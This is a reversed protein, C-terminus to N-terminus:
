FTLNESVIKDGKAATVTFITALGAGLDSKASSWTIDFEGTDSIVASANWINDSATDGSNRTITWNSFLSTADAGYGNKIMAKIHKTEGYAVLQDGGLDFSMTYGIKEFQDISGFIYANGIVIGYGTFTKEGVTWGDINGELYYINGSGFEWTNVNTLGISYETTRYKFSQRTVDNTNGRQAFNMHAQPHSLAPWNADNRLIYKFEGNNSTDTIETIEFYSTNFGKKSILGTHNDVDTTSNSGGFNHFIGMCLDGVAIAGFEGDELHLKCTGSNLDNGNEDKDITVSDILGGGKTQFDMGVLVEVRNFELKPVTLSEWLTLSRMEGKGSSDIKAGKGLLGTQYDGVQVNDSAKVSKLIAEGLKNISFDTGINIGLAASILQAVINNLTANGSGDIGMSGSGVKLGKLFSVLYNTSDEQGKSLFNTRLNKVAIDAIQSNGGITNEGTLNDIQQQIKQITGVTKTDKLTIEYKPLLGDGETIKLTDITINGTVNFDSDEIQILDGEQISYHFTTKKDTIADDHRKIFNTDPTLSYSNVTYDNKALWKLAWKLLEISAQEIYTEPMSIDTIVFEDGAKILSDKYPFYKGISTDEVRKCTLYWTDDSQQAWADVTFDRGGCYGGNFHIKPNTGSLRVDDFDFGLDKIHIIFDPVTAGAAYIGSDTITTGDTNSCGLAQNRNDAFYQLSPYIDKHTEDETTFYEAYPRIGLAGINKSNVYPYFQEESFTYGADVYAKLWTYTGKNAAVWAALTMKPFGPLMLNAINMNNPLASSTDYNFKSIDSINEKIAGSTIIASANSNLTSNTTIGANIDVIESSYKSGDVIYGKNTTQLFKGFTAKLTHTSTKGQIIFEISSRLETQYSLDFVFWMDNKGTSSADLMYNTIKATVTAGALSYYRPNLNTTNGYAKLRTIIQQDSQTNQTLDYLGQYKGVKFVIDNLSGNTGLTITRGRRIFNKGYKTKCYSIADWCSINSVTILMNKKDDDTAGDAVNITWKKDGTYYRDLNAQIRDALDQITSAVFSFNPQATFSRDSDATGVFDDFPITLEGGYSSFKISDYQFVEGNANRHDTKKGTPINDLTYKEGRYELYDGIGFSVEQKSKVTVTLNSEGMFTGDYEVKETECRLTGGDSSYIKYRM